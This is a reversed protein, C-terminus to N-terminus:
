FGAKISWEYQGNVKGCSLKESLRSSRLLKFFLFRIYFQSHLNLTPASSLLDKRQMESIKLLYQFDKIVQKLLFYM